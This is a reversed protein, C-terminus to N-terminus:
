PRFFIFLSPPLCLFLWLILLFYSPKPLHHSKVLLSISCSQHPATTSVGGRRQASVPVQDSQLGPGDLSPFLFCLFLSLSRATSLLLSSYHSYDVFVPRFGRCFCGREANHLDVLACSTVLSGCIAFRYAEMLLLRKKTIRCTRCTLYFHCLPKM